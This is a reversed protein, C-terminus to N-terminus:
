EPKTRDVQSVRAKVIDSLKGNTIEAQLIGIDGTSTKGPGLKDATIGTQGLHDGDKDLLEIEAYYNAADDGHNTVEYHVVYAGPGWVDHDEVGSKTIKVDKSAAPAKPKEAGTSAPASTSSGKGENSATTEGDCGVVVPSLMLVAAVAVGLRRM